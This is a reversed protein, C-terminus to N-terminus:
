AALKKDIMAIMASLRCLNARVLDEADLEIEFRQQIFMAMQVISFSDLIREDLLDVDAGIEGDFGIDSRIYDRLIKLKDTM